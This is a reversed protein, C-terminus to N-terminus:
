SVDDSGTSAAQKFELFEQGPALAIRSQPVLVATCRLNVTGLTVAITNPTPTVGAAATNIQLQADKFLVSLQANYFPNDGLLLALPLYLTHSFGHNSGSTRLPSFHRSGSQYGMGILEWLPATVGRVHQAALPRGHWAGVLDFSSYLCQCLQEWTVRTGGAATTYTGYATLALCPIYNAQNGGTLKPINNLNFNIVTSAGWTPALGTDGKLPWQRARSHRTLVASM